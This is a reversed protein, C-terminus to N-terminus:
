ISWMLIQRMQLSKKLHRDSLQARTHTCTAWWTDSATDLPAFTRFPPFRRSPDNMSGVSSALTEVSISQMFSSVNPGSSGTMLDTREATKM